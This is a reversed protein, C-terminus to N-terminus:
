YSSTTSISDTNNIIYIVVHKSGLANVKLSLISLCYLSLKMLPMAIWKQDKKM